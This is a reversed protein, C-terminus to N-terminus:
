FEIAVIQMEFEKRSPDWKQKTGVPEKEWYEQTIPGGLWYKLALYAAKSTNFLRPPYALTPENHTHGRNCKTRPTWAPLYSGSPKHLIAYFLKM